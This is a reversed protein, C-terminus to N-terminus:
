PKPEKHNGSKFISHQIPGLPEPPAWIMKALVYLFFGLLLLAHINPLNMKM